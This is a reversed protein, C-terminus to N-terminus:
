PGSTDLNRSGFQDETADTGDLRGKQREVASSHIFVVTRRGFDSVGAVASKAARQSSDATMSEYRHSDPLLTM